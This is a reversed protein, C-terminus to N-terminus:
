LVDLGDCRVQVPSGVRRAANSAKLARMNTTVTAALSYPFLLITRYDPAEEGTQGSTGGSAPRGVSVPAPGISRVSEPLQLAAAFAAVDKEAGTLSALRMAPPLGLEQRLTFEREAHGAPDWRVLASVEVSDEATVVVIGGDKASRVLAAANMWRRLTEEGARLSERRLMSDGDLLLAASYGHHAVPEAGITAVVIAPRDPVTTRIHDGSSSIVPVSPFARGLEEATRLAGISIARLQRNGCTGCSFATEAQGCWKCTVMSSASGPSRTQMLPGTCHRCRAVERCRQCALAPAYGTRAVQVLVPGMKLAAKATEWARHPLRAMAAAPDRELEYSDSTSIVRATAKRVEPREALLEQAWGTAVLRQSESSRSHGAMLVATAEVESRLLLVDRSHQYPARREIHLEDGDDWCCVLGLEAVPAYAASRTGIVIRVDGSLVQLFNAYRKSPGDDATLKVFSGKPLVATFAQELLELDRLDPVVVIAGRGSLQCYAVVQALQHHWSRPGWGHLAGLVGKPCQGLALKTLFDEAHAFETFLSHGPKAEPLMEVPAPGTEKKLYIKELSAVRPPVAVRLVDAVTGAYRAAVRRALELVQPTLVPVASYVRSLPVLRESESEATRAVLYGNLDQGSFKVKVRVGPRAEADLELPVSYDFMRDLHPLPSDIAVQAVPLSPALVVGSHPDAVRDKTVFGSLLSLQVGHNPSAHSAATHNEAETM